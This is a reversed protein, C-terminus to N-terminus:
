TLILDNSYTRIWHSTGKNPFPFKSVSVCLLFIAMHTHLCFTSNHQRLGPCASSQQCSGSAPLPLPSEERSGGSPAFGQQCRSKPSRVELVTLSYIETSTLWRTQVLKNRCGKSVLVAVKVNREKKEGRRIYTYLSFCDYM